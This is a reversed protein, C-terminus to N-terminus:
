NRFVTLVCDGETPVSRWLTQISQIENQSSKQPLSWTSTSSKWICLLSIQIWEYSGINTSWFVCYYSTWLCARWCRCRTPSIFSLTIFEFSFLKMVYFISWTSVSKVHFEYPTISELSFLIMENLVHLLKNHKQVVRQSTRKLDLTETWKLPSM